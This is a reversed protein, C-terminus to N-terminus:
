KYARRVCKGFEKTFPKHRKRCKASIKIFNKKKGMIYDGREQCHKKFSSVEINFLTFKFPM